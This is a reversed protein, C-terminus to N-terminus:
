MTIWRIRKICWCMRAADIRLASRRDYLRSAHGDRDTAMYPVPKNPTRFMSMSARSGGAATWSLKGKEDLFFTKAVASKPPWQDFKRWENTGTEFVWARPFKGDGKGKLLYM